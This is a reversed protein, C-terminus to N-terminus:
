DNVKVYFNVTINKPATEADGGSTISHNHASGTSDIDIDSFDANYRGTSNNGKRPWTPNDAGPAATDTASFAASGGTHTHGGGVATVFNATRPRRTFDNQQAGLAFDAEPNELGDNRGNNKARLFMGRADPVTSNGTLLHYRSGTVDQGDMLVWGSGHLSQFTALDLLSEKVDGVQFFNQVIETTVPIKSM